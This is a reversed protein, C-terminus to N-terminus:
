RDVVPKLFTKFYLVNDIVDAGFINGRVDINKIAQAADRQNAEQDLKCSPKGHGEVVLGSNHLCVLRDFVQHGIDTETPQNSRYM